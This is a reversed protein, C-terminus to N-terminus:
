PQKAVSRAVQLLNSSIKLDANEATTQSIDFRVRGSELVFAIMGGERLFTKGEGITLVYPGLLSLLRKVNQVEPSVYVVRCGAAIPAQAFRRVILRRSKVSEGQVVDDLIRGFPDKGLICLEMTDQPEAFGEPPWEVFRSFNLLFAAKVGYEASPGSQAFAVGGYTALLVLWLWAACVSGPKNPMGM